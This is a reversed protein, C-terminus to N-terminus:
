RPQFVLLALFARREEADAASFRQIAREALEIDAEADARRFKLSPDYDAGHRKEQLELTFTAFRKIDNSFGAAPEYKGVAPRLYPKNVEKCLSALAIHSISRYALMYLPTRQMTKGVFENAMEGLIFHFVGYYCASVARRLDVQRPAGKGAPQILRGAQQFFHKPRPITM